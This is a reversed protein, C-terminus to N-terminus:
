QSVFNDLDTYFQPDEGTVIKAIKGEPNIIIKTPYGQIAYIQDPGNGAQTDNYLNVWPLEYKTVANKWAELTDGCDIGLFEVRGSHKAYAEKMKPFGKICWGCWSGWFDLVVWKGRFDSLSVMKGSLDPLTFDPADVNGSQMETQRREAALQAEIREKSSEVFPYYLSGKAGEGLLAYLEHFKGSDVNLMAYAATPTDPNTRIYNEFITYYRVIAEEFGADNGSRRMEMIEDRVPMAEKKLVTIGDLLPTGSIETVPQEESGSIEVVVNEGPGAFFEAFARESGEPTLVYQMAVSADLPFRVVGGTVALTDMHMGLDAETRATLLNKIPAKGVVIRSYSPTFGFAVEVDAMVASACLTGMCVSLLLKKM